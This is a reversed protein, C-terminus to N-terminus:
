PQLQLKGTFSNCYVTDGSFLRYKLWLPSLTEDQAQERQGHFAETEAIHGERFLMWSLAQQQHPKM